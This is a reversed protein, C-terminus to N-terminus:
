AKCVADAMRVARVTPLVDHVRVAAAGREAEPFSVRALKTGDPLPKEAEDLESNIRELRKGFINAIAKRGVLWLLGFLLIFNILAYVFEM